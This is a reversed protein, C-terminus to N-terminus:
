VFIISATSDHVFHFVDAGPTQRISHPYVSCGRSATGERATRIEHHHQVRMRQTRLGLSQEVEPREIFQLSDPTGTVHELNGGGLRVRADNGREVNLLVERGEGGGRARDAGGLDLVAACEAAVERVRRGGAIRQRHQEGVVGDHYGVSARNRDVREKGAIALGRQM